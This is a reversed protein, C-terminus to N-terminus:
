KNIRNQEEEIGSSRHQNVKLNKNGFNYTFALSMHQTNYMTSSSVAVEPQDMGYVYRYTHFPDTVM